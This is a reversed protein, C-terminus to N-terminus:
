LLSIMLDVYQSLPRLFLLCHIMVLWCRKLGILNLLLKKNLNLKEFSFENFFRLREAQINALHKELEETISESYKVFSPMVVHTFLAVRLIQSLKGPVVLTGGPYGSSRWEGDYFLPARSYYIRWKMYPSYEHFLWNYGKFVIPFSLESLLSIENKFLKRKEKPDGGGFYRNYSKTDDYLFLFSVFTIIPVEQFDKTKPAIGLIKRLDEMKIFLRIKKRWDTTVRRFNEASRIIDKTHDFLIATFTPFMMFDVNPWDSIKFNIYEEEVSLNKPILSGYRRKESKPISSFTGISVSSPDVFPNNKLRKIIVNKGNNSFRYPYSLPSSFVNYDGPGVSRIFTGWLNYGDESPELFEVLDRDFHLLPYITTIFAPSDSAIAISENAKKRTDSPSVEGAMAFCLMNIGLIVLGIKIRWRWFKFLRYVYPIKVLLYVGDQNESRSKM